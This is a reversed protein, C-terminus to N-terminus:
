HFSGVNQLFESLKNHLKQELKNYTFSNFLEKTIGKAGRKQASSFLKASECRLFLVEYVPRFPKPIVEIIM